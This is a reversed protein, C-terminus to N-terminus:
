RRLLVCCFLKMGVVYGGEDGSVMVGGGVGGVCALVVSKAVSGVLKCVICLKALGDVCVGLYELVLLGDIGVVFAFGCWCFKAFSPM